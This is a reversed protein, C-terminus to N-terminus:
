LYVGLRFLQGLKKKLRLRVTIGLRLLLRLLAREALGLEVVLDAHKVLAVIIHILPLKYWNQMVLLLHHGRLAIMVVTVISAVVLMICTSLLKEDLFFWDIHSRRLLAVERVLM